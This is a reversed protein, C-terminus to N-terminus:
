RTLAGRESEISEILYKMLAYSNMKACRQWIEPATKTQRIWDKATEENNLCASELVASGSAVNHCRGNIDFKPMSQAFADLAPIFALLAVVAMRTPTGVIGALVGGVLALIRSVAIFTESM